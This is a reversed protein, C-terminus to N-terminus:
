FLSLQVGTGPRLPRRFTGERDKPAGPFQQKRYAAQFLRAILQAYTGEGRFRKGFRDDNLAGGRCERIRHLIREAREPLAQRLREVFVAEVSGPLRLMTFGAWQAGAARAGELVRAMDEDNLGPIIPAVNVGVPVGAERLAKVAQLRREPTAVFPEIARAHQKDWFPISLMVRAGAVRELEALLDRDREVLAAKTILAVPNRYALCVELIARTLKYTAELPQYPDTVGSLMIPEGTWSPKEFAARLLEAAKPKVIIKTDFDTGAGLGLWEHSPRAYCYACGHQCGRYPNASYKFPLDPSDNSALISKASDEYVEVSLPKGEGEDYTTHQALFPNPPNEETRKPM